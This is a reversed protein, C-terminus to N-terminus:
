GRTGLRRSAAEFSAGPPAFSAGFQLMGEAPEPCARRSAFSRKARLILDYPRRPGFSGGGLPAVRETGAVVLGAPALESDTKLSKLLKRRWNRAM